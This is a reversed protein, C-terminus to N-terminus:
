KKMKEGRSHWWDYGYSIFLEEGSKIERNSRFTITKKDENLLWKVNAQDRHKYISGCGLAMAYRGDAIKYVYDVLDTDRIKADTEIYFCEEMIEDEKFDDIAYVSLEGDKTKGIGIRDWIKVSASRRLIGYGDRIYGPMPNTKQANQESEFTSFSQIPM